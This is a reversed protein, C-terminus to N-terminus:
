VTGDRILRPIMKKLLVTNIEALRSRKPSAKYKRSEKCRPWMLRSNLNASHPNSWATGKMASLTTISLTDAEGEQRPNVLMASSLNLRLSQVRCLPRCRVRRPQDPISKLLDKKKRAELETGIRSEGRELWQCAKVHFGLNFRWGCSGCPIVSKPKSLLSRRGCQITAM